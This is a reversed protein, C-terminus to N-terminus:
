VTLDFTKRHVLGDGFRNYSRIADARVEDMRAEPVHVPKYWAPIHHVTLWLVAGASVLILTVTLLIWLLRKPRTKQKSQRSVNSEQQSEDRQHHPMQDM